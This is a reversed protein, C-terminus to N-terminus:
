HNEASKKETCVPGVWKSTFTTTIVTPAGNIQTETTGKVHESDIADVQVAGSVKAKETDCAVDMRIQSSTAKTVNYKCTAPLNAPQFGKAVDDKTVCGSSVTTHPAGAAKMRAELKARQEPPLKDLVEPPLSAIAAGGGGATTITTEWQGPKINLSQGSSLGAGVSLASLFLFSRSIKV